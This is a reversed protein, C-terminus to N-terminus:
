RTRTAHNGKIIGSIPAIVAGALGWWTLAVTEDAWVPLLLGIIALGIGSAFLGLARWDRRRRWLRVMVLGFLGIFAALGIWGSEHAVFFYHNEIITDNSSSDDYLSASGTSGVGAGLPQRVMREFGDVFSGLHADNSKTMVTSEPDEHLVVNSFWDTSSLPVLVAAVLAVGIVGATILRRSVRVTSLIMAAMAAAFALYASRSYSAFLVAISGVVSTAAVVKKRVSGRTGGLFLYTVGLAAYVVALAGLPNPGRVTSNIRVYDPNSDITTYPTITEKSYGLVALTDDPLLTIQLLGFGVIITAGAAAAAFLRRTVGPRLLVLLYTLVTMGVFRLDILLGAAVSQVDGGFAVALIVHILLFAGALQIFRDSLCARWMGRKTVMIVALAGLAVLVIEKWAKAPVGYEPVYTQVAVSFPAHLVVGLMVVLLGWEYVSLLGLRKM